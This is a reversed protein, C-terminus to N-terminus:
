SLQVCLEGPRLHASTLKLAEGPQEPSRLLRAAERAPREPEPLVARQRFAVKGSFTKKSSSTVEPIGVPGLSGEGFGWLGQLPVSVTRVVM